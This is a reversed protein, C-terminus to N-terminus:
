GLLHDSEDLRHHFRKPEVEAALWKDNENDTDVAASLCRRDGLECLLIPVSSVLHQERGAVREAGGTDLL